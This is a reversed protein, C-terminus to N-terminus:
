ISLDKLRKLTSFKPNDVALRAAVFATMDSLLAPDGADIEGTRLAACFAREAEAGGGDVGTREAYYAREAPLPDDRVERSIIALANRAVKAHFAQRGELQPMIEEIFGSVAEALEAPGIPTTM